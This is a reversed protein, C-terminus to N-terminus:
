QIKVTRDGVTFAAIGDTGGADIYVAIPTLTLGSAAVTERAGTTQDVLDVTPGITWARQYDFVDGIAPPGGADYSTTAFTPNTGTTLAVARGDTNFLGFAAFAISADATEFDQVTHRLTITQGVSVMASGPSDLRDGNAAFVGIM